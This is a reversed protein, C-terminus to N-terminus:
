TEEKIKKVEHICPYVSLFYNRKGGVTIEYTGGIDISGYLDLSNLRGYLWSDTIEYVTDEVYILYKDNKVMKDTVTIVETRINSVKNIPKWIAVGLSILIVIVWFFCQLLAFENSSERRM